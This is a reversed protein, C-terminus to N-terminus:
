ASRRGALTELAASRASEPAVTLLTGNDDHSIVLAPTNQWEAITEASVGYLKGFDASSVPAGPNRTERGRFRVQNYLAWGMLIAGNLVAILGYLGLTSLFGFFTPLDPRAADLFAWAFTETVLLYCDIFADKILYLFVLWV